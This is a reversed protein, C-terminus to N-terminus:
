PASRENQQLQSRLSSTVASLWPWLTGGDFSNYRDNMAGGQVWAIVEDGHKERWTDLDIELRPLDGLSIFIRGKLDWSGPVASPVQQLDSVLSLLESWYESPLSQECEDYGRICFTVGTVDELAIGNLWEEIPKRTPSRPFFFCAQLSMSLALLASVRAVSTVM